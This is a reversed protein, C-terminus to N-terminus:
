VNIDIDRQYKLVYFPNVCLKYALEYHRLLGFEM